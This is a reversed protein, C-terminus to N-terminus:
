RKAYHVRRGKVSRACTRKPTHESVIENRAAVCFNVLRSVNENIDIQDAHLRRIVSAAREDSASWVADELDHSMSNGIEVADDDNEFTISSL